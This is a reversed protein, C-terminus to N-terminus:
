TPRELQGHAEQIEPKAFQLHCLRGFGLLTRWSSSIVAPERSVQWFKVDCMEDPWEAPFIIKAENM